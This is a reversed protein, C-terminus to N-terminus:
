DIYDDTERTRRSAGYAAHTFYRIPPDSMSSRTIQVVLALGQNLGFDSDPETSTSLTIGSSTRHEMSLCFKPKQLRALDDKEMSLPFHAMNGECTADGVDVYFCPIKM